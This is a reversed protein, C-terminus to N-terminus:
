GTELIDKYGHSFPSICDLQQNVTLIFQFSQEITNRSAIPYGTCELLMTGPWVTSDSVLRTGRLDSVHARGGHGAIELEAYRRESGM